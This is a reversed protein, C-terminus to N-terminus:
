PNPAAAAAPPLAARARGARQPSPPAAAQSRERPPPRTTVPARAPSRAPEPWCPSGWLFSPSAAPFVPAASCFPFPPPSATSVVQCISLLQPSLQHSAPARSVLASYLVRSKHFPKNCQSQSSGQMSPCLARPAPLASLSARIKFKVSRNKNMMIALTSAPQARRASAETTPEM